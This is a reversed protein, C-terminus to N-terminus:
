TVDRRLTLRSGVGAFVLGYLVLVVAAQWPKLFAVEGGLFQDTVASAANGPFFRFIKDGHSWLRLLLSVIGEAALTWGLALLLAAVQNKILTGIGIGIIAYTTIVLIIGGIAQPVKDVSLSFSEGVLSYCIYGTIITVAVAIVAFILGLILAALLKAAVVLSRRPSALFTPTVTMHRYETTIMLIGLILVLTKASIAGSLVGRIAQDSTLEPPLGAPDGDRPTFHYSAFQLFANFAVYPVLGILVGWLTWTTRLKLLEARVLDIM